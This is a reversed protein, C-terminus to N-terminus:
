KSFIVEMNCTENTIGYLTASDSRSYARFAEKYNEHTNDGLDTAVIYYCYKRKSM